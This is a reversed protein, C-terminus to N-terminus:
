VIDDRVKGGVAEHHVCVCEGGCVFLGKGGWNEASLHLCIVQKIPTPQHRMQFLNIYWPRLLQCRDPKVRKIVM